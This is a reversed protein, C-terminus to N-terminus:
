KEVEQLHQVLSEGRATLLYRTGQLDSEIELLGKKLLFIVYKEALKHSLNARGIIHTKSVGQAGLSLIEYIVRTADRRLRQRM